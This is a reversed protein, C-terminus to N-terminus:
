WALFARAQTINKPAQFNRISETMVAAPKIEDRTITFGIYNVVDEAFKFKKKNFNIGGRSCTTLYRCILGFSTRLDDEWLLLDDVCKTVNQFKSTINDFRHTYADGSCILGQGSGICRYKGFECLFETVERSEGKELVVSHYGDKADLISKKKGPPCASACMFPCKTINTQRPIANNLKKCDIIRHPSGDKKMTVLKRSLWKVPSNIDVKELIGLRVGRDLDAKVRAKLHIPIIAVKHIAVPKVAPDV